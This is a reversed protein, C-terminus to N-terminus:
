YLPNYVGDIIARKTTIEEGRLFKEIGYTKETTEMKLFPNYITVYEMDDSLVYSKNNIKSLDNLIKKATELKM